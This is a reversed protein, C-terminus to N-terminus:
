REMAAPPLLCASEPQRRFPYCLQGWWARLAESANGGRPAPVQAHKVGTEPYADFDWCQTGFLIDWIAFVNGFNRDQHEPRSSHHVRHSQPTVLLYRLPGLHTRVNSHTFMEYARAFLTWAIFSPVAVKLDLMTFPLVRVLTVALFDGPHLRATTFCNLQEQSHHIQHFRWIFSLKHRLFHALWGLFDSALIVLLFQLPLSLPQIVIQRDLELAQYYVWAVLGESPLVLLVLMLPACCFWLFDNLLAAPFLGQETRAMRLKEFGIALPLFGVMALYGVLKNPLNACRTSPGLMSECADQLHAAFLPWTLLALISLSGVTLLLAALRRDLQVSVATTNNDVPPTYGAAIPTESM